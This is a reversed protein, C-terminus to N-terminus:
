NMAFPPEQGARRWQEFIIGFVWVPECRSVVPLDDAAPNGGGAFAIILQATLFAAWAL